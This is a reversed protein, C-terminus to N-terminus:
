LTRWHLVAGYGVVGVGMGKGRGGDMTFGERKHGEWQYKSSQENHLNKHGNEHHEDHTWLMKRLYLCNCSGLKEGVHKTIGHQKHAVLTPTPRRKTHTNKM